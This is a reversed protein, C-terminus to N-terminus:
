KMMVMKKLQSHDGAQMKYFYVGSSVKKYNDDTGNWIVRHRGANVNDNLLTKIKQGKINFIEINVFSNEVLDFSITTNPNFPNPYAANLQTSLPIIITDDTIIETKVSVPGFYEITGDNEFSMLWYFYEKGNYASTDTFSYNTETAQNLARILSNTVKLSNSLSNSEARLIHYGHMNSESQTTWHISITNAYTHIASFSSLTVPLTQDALKAWSLYPYGDNVGAQINWIKSTDYNAVMEWNSYTELNKMEETTKGTGRVSTQSGSTGKDWFSNQVIITGEGVGGVFGKDNQIASGFKVYGTSYCRNVTGAALFGIFGGFGTQTHNVRIIDGNSYCDTIVGGGLRGIFGGVRDNNATTTVSGTSYCETVQGTENNGIFGGLNQGAFINNDTINVKSYSKNIINKNIGVLGGATGAGSINGSSNCNIITGESMGVLAGVNLRATINVNLVGLNEVRGDSGIFGFLGQYDSDQNNTTRDIYLGSITKNDGNYIGKFPKNNSSTTFNGIPIWGQGTNHPDVNLDINSTQIFYKTSFDNGNNVATALQVLHEVTEILYPEGDTGSGGGFTNAYVFGVCLYFLLIVGFIKKM